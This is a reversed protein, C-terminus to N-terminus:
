GFFVHFLKIQFSTERFKESIQRSTRGSITLAIKAPAFDEGRFIGRNKGDSTEFKLDCERIDQDKFDLMKPM